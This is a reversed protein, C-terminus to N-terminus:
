RRTKPRPPARSPERGPAAALLTGAHLVRAMTLAQTLALPPLVELQQLLDLLDAQLWLAVLRGASFRSIVVGTLSAPRGPPALGLLPGSFTGQVQLRLMVAEPGAIQEIITWRADPVATRFAALYERLRGLPTVDDAGGAPPLLADLITLDGQNCAEEILRCLLAAPAARRRGRTTETRRARPM